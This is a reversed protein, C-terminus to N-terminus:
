QCVVEDSMAGKPLKRPWPDNPNKTGHIQAGRGTQVCALPPQLLNVVFDLAILELRWINHNWRMKPVSHPMAALIEGHDAAYAGVYHRQRCLRQLATM